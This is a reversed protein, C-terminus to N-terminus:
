LRTSFRQKCCGSMFFSPPLAILGAAVLFSQAGTFRRALIFTLRIIKAGLIAQVYVASGPSHGLFECCGAVFFPYVPTRSPREFFYGNLLRYALREYGLEHGTM